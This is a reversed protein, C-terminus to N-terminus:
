NSVISNEGQQESPSPDQELHDLDCMFIKPLGAITSFCLRDSVSSMSM